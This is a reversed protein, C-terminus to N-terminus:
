FRRNLSVHVHISCYTRRPQGENLLQSLLGWKMHMEKAEMHGNSCILSLMVGARGSSAPSVYQFLAILLPFHPVPAALFPLLPLLLQPFSFFLFFTQKNTNQHFDFYNYLCIKNWVCEGCRKECVMVDSAIETKCFAIACIRGVRADHWQDAINRPSPAIFM